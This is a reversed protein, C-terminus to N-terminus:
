RENYLNETKIYEEVQDEASNDEVVRKYVKTNLKSDQINVHWKGQLEYKFYDHKRVDHIIEKLIIRIQRSPIVNIRGIHENPAIVRMDRNKMQLIMDADDRFQGNGDLYYYRDLVEELMEAINEDKSTKFQKQHETLDAVLEGRLDIAVDPNQFYKHAAEAWIQEIFEPTLKEIMDWSEAKTGHCQIPWYRRECFDTYDKLFYQTNTSGCYCNHRQHEEVTREYPSRFNDCRISLWQKYREADSKSFNALEDVVVCWCYDLKQGYEQEKSNVNINLEIGWQEFLKEWVTNKGDGQEGVLIIMVENKCGPQFIRKVAGLFWLLTMMRILPTDDAKLLVCFLTPIRDKGDWKDKIELLWDQLPHKKNNHAVIYYADDIDPRSKIKMDKETHFPMRRIDIEELPRAKIYARHKFENWWLKNKYRESEQFYVIYNELTSEPKSSRVLIKGHSTNYPVLKYELLNKWENPSPFSENYPMKGNAKAEQAAAKFLPDDEGILQEKSQKELEKAEKELQKQKAKEEKEREKAEKEAAKAKEKEQKELLKQQEKEVRIREKEADKEQKQREKEEKEAAKAKEKAKQEKKKQKEKEEKEKAKQKAKEEAREGAASYSNEAAIAKIQTFLYNETNEKFETKISKFLPSLLFLSKPTPEEGNISIKNTGVDLRLFVKQQILFDKISM